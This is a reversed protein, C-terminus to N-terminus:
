CYTVAPYQSEWSGSLEEPLNLLEIEYFEAYDPFVAPNIENEAPDIKIPIQEYKVGRVQKAKLCNRFTRM